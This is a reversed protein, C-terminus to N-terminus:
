QTAELSKKLYDISIELTQYNSLFQDKIETPLNIFDEFHDFFPKKYDEDSYSGFFACWNRFSKIMEQECLDNILLREYEKKLPYDEWNQLNARYADIKKNVSDRIKDQRLTEYNDIEEQYKEQTELSSESHPEIPIPLIVEKMSEQTFEKIMLMLVLEIVQEKTIEDFDPVFVVREDSDVQKLKKRLDKSARVALVKARNLEADGVLRMYADTVKNSYKDFIEFKNSWHFLKSIDVENKEVSM